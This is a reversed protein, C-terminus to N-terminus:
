IHKHASGMEERTKESEKADHGRDQGGHSLDRLQQFVITKQGSVNGAVARYSNAEVVSRFVSREKVFFAVARHLHRATFELELIPM